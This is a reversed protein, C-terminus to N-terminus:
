LPCSDVLMSELNLIWIAEDAIKILDSETQILTLKVEMGLLYNLMSM